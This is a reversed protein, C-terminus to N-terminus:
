NAERCVKWEYRPKGNISGLVVPEMNAERTSLFFLQGQLSDRVLWGHHPVESILLLTVLTCVM